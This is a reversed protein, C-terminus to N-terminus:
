ILRPYTLNKQKGLYCKALSATTFTLGITLPRTTKQFEVDCTFIRMAFKKFNSTIELSENSSIYELVLLDAYPRYPEMVDDALCYANYKNHHHIGLMPLMGSGVIARATAARLLSYTYNLLANPADGFRERKFGDFDFINQWYYKSAVGERNDSDGTLVNKSLNLLFKHDKNIKALLLAQNNIKAVVTQKWLNKKLPESASIQANSIETQVHHGDLNYLISTPHHTADCFVTAINYESCKQMLYHTFTIQQNDFILYAIDDLPLTSIEGSSKNSVTLQENKVALHVPNSIFVTRKLM